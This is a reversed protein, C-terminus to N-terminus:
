WTHTSLLTSAQLGPGIVGEGVRLVLELDTVTLCPGLLIIDAM